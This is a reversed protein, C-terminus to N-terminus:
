LSFNLCANFNDFSVFLSVCFKIIRKKFLLLLLLHIFLYIFLYISLVVRKKDEDPCVDKSFNDGHLCCWIKHLTM